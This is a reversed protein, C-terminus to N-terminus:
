YLGVVSGRPSRSQFCLCAENGTRIDYLLRSFWARDSKDTLMPKKLTNRSNIITVKQTVITVSRALSLPATYQLREQRHTQKHTQPDTAVIVRFQMCRDEGFQTQLHLYHGDGASQIKATRCRRSSPRSRPSNKKPEAKVALV